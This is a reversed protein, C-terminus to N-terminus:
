MNTSVYACIDTTLDQCDAPRQWPQVLADNDGVPAVAVVQGDLEVRCQQLQEAPLTAPQLRREIELEGRRALPQDTPHGQVPALVFLAVPIECVNRTHVRVSM